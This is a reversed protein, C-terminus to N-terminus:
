TVEENDFVLCHPTDFHSFPIYQMYVNKQIPDCVDSQELHDVYGQEALSSGLKEAAYYWICM